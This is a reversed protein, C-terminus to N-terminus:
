DRLHHSLAARLSCAKSGTMCLHPSPPSISTRSGSRAVMSCWCRTTALRARDSAFCLDCSLAIGLGAGVAPGNVAAITVKPIDSLLWPLEHIERQRDIRGEFTKSITPRAYRAETLEVVRKPSLQDLVVSLVGNDPAVFKVEGSERLKAHNEVLRHALYIPLPMLTKTEQCAFGFMMGQDGAGGVDVGMSIDPSQAHLNIHVQVTKAAFGISPDTYGIERVMDRIIKDVVERSLDAKTTIEGSVIAVESRSIGLAKSLLKMVAENAAGEAPAESVRVELEERGDAGARWGGIGPKASRPTVRIALVPM